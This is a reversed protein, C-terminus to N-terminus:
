LHSVTAILFNENPVDKNNLYVKKADLLKGGVILGSRDKKGSGLNASLVTANNNRSWGEIITSKGINGQAVPYLFHEIGHDCLKNPPDEFMIGFCVFIGFEIGFDNLNIHLKHHLRQFTMDLM